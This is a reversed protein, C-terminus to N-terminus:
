CILLLSAFESFVLCEELESRLVLSKDLSLEALCDFYDFKTTKSLFYCAFAAFGGGGRFFVCYNHAFKLGKIGALQDFQVLGPYFNCPSDLNWSLLRLLVFFSSILM